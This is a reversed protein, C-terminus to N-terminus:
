TPLINQHVFGAIMSRTESNQTKGQGTDSQDPFINIAEKKGPIDKSFKRM